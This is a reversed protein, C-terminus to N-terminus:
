HQQVSLRGEGSEAPLYIRSSIDYDGALLRQSKPSFWTVEFSYDRRQRPKPNSLLLEGGGFRAPGLVRASVRDNRKDDSQSVVQSCAERKLVSAQQNSGQLAFAAPDV